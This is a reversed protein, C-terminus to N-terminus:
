ILARAALVAAPYSKSSAQGLSGDKGIFMANYIGGTCTISFRYEGDEIVEGIADYVKLVTNTLYESNM